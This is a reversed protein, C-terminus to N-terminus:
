KKRRSTITMVQTEGAPPITDYMEIETLDDGKPKIVMRFPREGAVDIMTGKLDITGDAAEKGRSTVWWTSMSDAWLSIYEEKMNDYGLFQLGEMPMGMMEFHLSDMMYRGGLVPKAESTGKFEMWPADPGMRYKYDNEWKGAMKALAKHEEGPTALQMMKEMMAADFGPPAGEGKDQPRLAAATVLATGAVLLTASLTLKLPTKM